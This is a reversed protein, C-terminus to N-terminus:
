RLSSLTTLGVASLVLCVASVLGGWKILAANSGAFTMERDGAAERDM